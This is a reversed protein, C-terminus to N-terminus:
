REPRIIGRVLAGFLNVYDDSWVPAKLPPPPPSWRPDARLADLTRPNRAVIVAKEDSDFVTDPMKAVHEQVLVDGGAARAVQAIPRVLELHRNSLHMLVMGDADVQDLYLRMAEITLLHMPISDSSFADVLLLDYRAPPERALSLRADGLVTDIAGRACGNIYSFKQPDSATRVVLPDIEYFRLTDGPRTFAAVSGAGMGVVGISLAPQRAQLAAFVQGIPTPRAYYILPECRRAETRMQAGHLTTGNALSRVMENQRIRLVGFFSRESSVLDERAPLLPSFLAGAGILAFFVAARERM